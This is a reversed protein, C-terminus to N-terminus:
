LLTFLTSSQMRCRISVKGLVSASSFGILLRSILSCDSSPSGTDGIRLFGRATGSAFEEGATAIFPLPLPTFMFPLLGKLSTSLSPMTSGTRLLGIVSSSLSWGVAFFGLAKLGEARSSMITMSSSPVMEISQHNKWTEFESVGDERGM